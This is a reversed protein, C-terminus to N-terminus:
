KLEFSMEGTVGTLVEAARLRWTGERRRNYEAVTGYKKGMRVRYEAVNEPHEDLEDASGPYPLNPEDCIVARRIGFRCYTEGAKSSRRKTRSACTPREPRLDIDM